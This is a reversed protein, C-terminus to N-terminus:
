EKPLVTYEILGEFRETALHFHEQSPYEVVFTNGREDIIEVGEEDPAETVVKRWMAEGHDFRVTVSM